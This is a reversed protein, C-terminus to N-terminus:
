EDGSKETESTGPNPLEPFAPATGSSSNQEPLPPAEPLGDGEPSEDLGEPFAPAADGPLKLMSPTDPLQILSEPNVSPHGAPLGDTPQPLDSPKPNQNKFWAYFEQTEEEQLSKIQTEVFSAYISDPFRELFTQYAKVADDTDKGSLTELCRALGFLAREELPAPMGSQNLLERYKEEAANLDSVAGERDTFSGRVGQNLLLDAENLLAWQGPAEGKHQSAVTGYDDVDNATILKSWGASNATQSTQTVYYWASFALMLACVAYIMVEKYKEFFPAVQSALKELENTKLDRQHQNM